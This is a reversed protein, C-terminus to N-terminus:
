RALAKVVTQALTASASNYISVRAGHSLEVIIAPQGPTPVSSSEELVVAEVFGQNEQAAALAASLKRRWTYVLATSVDHRRAVRAVCAGPPLSKKWFAGGSRWVGIAAVNLDVSFRSGAWM